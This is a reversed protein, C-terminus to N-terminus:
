STCILILNDIYKQFTFEEELKKIAKNVKQTSINENSLVYRIKKALSIKDEAEFYTIEDKLFYDKLQFTNSAIVPIGLSVAQFAAILGLSRIPKYNRIPIVILSSNAILNRYEKYPLNFYFDIGDIKKNEWDERDGEGGIVHAKYNRLLEIAKVFTNIDRHHGACIVYEKNNEKKVKKHKIPSHYSFYPVFIFKNKAFIKFKNTYLEIEKTTHVIIKDPLRVFIIYFLIKIKSFFYSKNKNNFDALDILLGIFVIKNINREYFPLLRYLLIFWFALKVDYNFVVIKFNNAVKLLRFIQYLKNKKNYNKDFETIDIAHVLWKKQSSYDINVTLIKKKNTSPNIDNNIKM